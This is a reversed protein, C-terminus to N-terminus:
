STPRSHTCVQNVSITKRFTHTHTGVLRGKNTWVSQVLRQTSYKECLVLSALAKDPIFFQLYLKHCVFRSCQVTLFKSLLRSVAYYNIRWLKLCHFSKTQPM